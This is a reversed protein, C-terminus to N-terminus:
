KESQKVNLQEVMSVLSAYVQYTLKERDKENCDFAVRAKLGGFEGTYINKDPLQSVGLYVPEGIIKPFRDPLSAIEKKLLEEGREIGVDISIPIDIIVPSKERSKNILEVIRSNNIIKIDGRDEDQILKVTRMSIDQVIGRFDGIKVVDGVTFDGEFIIFLGALVDAILSNAGLTFILATVGVGNVLTRTEVGFMSLAYLIMVISGIYTLGSEILRCITRGKPSLYKCLRELSRNIALRVAVIVSALMLCTTVTAANVGRSWTGRVVNYTLGETDGKTTIYLIATLIFVAIMFHSIFAQLDPYDNRRSCTEPDLLLQQSQYEAVCRTVPRFVALLLVLILLLSLSLVGGAFVLSSTDESGVIVYKGDYGFVVSYLKNGDFSVIGEYGDYLLHAHIDHDEAIEGIWHKRTGGTIRANEGSEVVIVHLSDLIHLDGVVENLSTNRLLEDLQEQRVCLEVWGISKGTRDTMLTRYYRLNQEEINNNQASQHISSETISEDVARHLLEDSALVTGDIDFVRLGYGDLAHDLSNLSDIDILEPNDSLISAATRARASYMADFESTISDARESERSLVNKLYEAQDTAGQQSLNVNSLMQIVTVSGLVLFVAMVMASISQKVAFGPKGANDAGPRYLKTDWLCKVLCVMVACCLFWLSWSRKRGFRVLTSIDTASIVFDRSDAYAASYLMYKGAPVGATGTNLKAELATKQKHLKAEAMLAEPALKGTELMESIMGRITEEHEDRPYVSLEGAHLVAIYGPLGAQFQSLFYDKDQGFAMRDERLSSGFSLVLLRGDRLETFSINLGDSHSQRETEEYDARSIIQTKEANLTRN